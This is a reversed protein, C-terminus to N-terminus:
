TPSALRARTKKMEKKKEDKVFAQILSHEYDNIDANLFEPTRTKKLSLLLLKQARQERDKMQSSNYRSIDIALLSRLAVTTAVINKESGLVCCNSLVSFIADCNVSEQVFRQLERRHDAGHLTAIFSRYRRVYDMQMPSDETSWILAVFWDSMERTRRSREKARETWRDIAGLGDALAFLGFGGVSLFFLCNAITAQINNM